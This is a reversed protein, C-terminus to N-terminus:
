EPIALATVASIYVFHSSLLGDIETGVRWCFIASCNRAFNAWVFSASEVLISLSWFSSASFFFGVASSKTLIKVSGAPPSSLHDFQFGDVDLFDPANALEIRLSSRSKWFFFKAIEPAFPDPFLPTMSAMSNPSVPCIPRSVPLPVLPSERESCPGCTSLVFNGSAANTV